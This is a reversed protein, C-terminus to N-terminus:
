IERFYEKWCSEVIVGSPAICDDCRAEHEFTWSGVDYPCCEHYHALINIADNLASRLSDIKEHAMNLKIAPVVMPFGGHDKIITPKNKSM